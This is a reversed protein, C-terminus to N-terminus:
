PRRHRGPWRHAGPRSCSAWEGELDRERDLVFQGVPGVFGVPQPALLDLPGTIFGFQGLPTIEADVGVVTQHSGRQFGLPVVLEAGQVRRLVVVLTLSAASVSKSSSFRWRTSASAVSKGRSHRSGSVGARSRLRIARSSM